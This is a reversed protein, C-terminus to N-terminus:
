KPIRQPKVAVPVPQPTHWLAELGRLGALFARLRPWWRPPWSFSAAAQFQRQLAYREAERFFERQRIQVYLPDYEM